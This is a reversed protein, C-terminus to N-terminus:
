VAVYAELSLSGDFDQPKRWARHQPSHPSPFTIVQKKKVLIALLPSNELRSCQQEALGKPAADVVFREMEPMEAQAEVVKM